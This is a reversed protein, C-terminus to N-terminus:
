SVREELRFRIIRCINELATQREDDLANGIRQEFSELIMSATAGKVAFIFPFEFRAKYADNLEHFRTFQEESLRDLGAGKQERSSDTTLEGRRAARGALDPHARILALQREQSAELVSVSFAEVMASRNEFPRRTAAEEAVWPSHEAVEGFTEVFAAISMANVTNLELM